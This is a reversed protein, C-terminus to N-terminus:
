IKGAACDRNFVAQSDIEIDLPANWLLNLCVADMNKIDTTMHALKDCVFRIHLDNLKLFEERVKQVPIDAGHIRIHTHTSCYKSILVRMIRELQESPLENALVEYAVNAKFRKEASDWDMVPSVPTINNIDNKREKNNSDDSEAVEVSQNEPETNTPKESFNYTPKDLRNMLDKVYIHYPNGYGHRKRKILGVKELEKFTTMAKDRKCNLQNCAENVTYIVYFGHEDRFTDGKTASLCIRNYLKTYLEKAAPSLKRYNPNTDLARPRMDFGENKPRTNLLM